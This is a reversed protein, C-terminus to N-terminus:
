CKHLAQLAECIELAAFLTGSYLVSVKLEVLLVPMQHEFRFLVTTNPGDAIFEVEGAPNLMQM